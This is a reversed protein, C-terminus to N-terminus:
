DEEFNPIFFKTTKVYFDHITLKVLGPGLIQLPSDFFAHCWWSVQVSTFRLTMQDM